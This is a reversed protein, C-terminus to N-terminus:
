YLFEGDDHADYAARCSPDKSILRSCRRPPGSHPAHRLSVNTCCRLHAAIGKEKTCREPECVKGMENQMRNAPARSRQAASPVPNRACGKTSGALMREWEFKCPVFRLSSEPTICHATTRGGAVSMVPPNMLVGGGFSDLTDNCGTIMLRSKAAAQVHGPSRRAPLPGLVSPSRVQHRLHADYCEETLSKNETTRPERFQCTQIVPERPM